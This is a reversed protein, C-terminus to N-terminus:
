RAMAESQPLQQGLEALNQCFIRYSRLTERLRETDGPDTPTRGAPALAAQRQRLTDVLTAVAAETAQAARQVSAQPDDVFLAQIDHWQESVDGSEGSTRGGPAAHSSTVDRASAAGSEAVEAVIVGPYEMEADDEDLDDLDDVDDQDLDGEDLVILDPEVDGPRNDAHNTTPSGGVPEPGSEAQYQDPQSTM